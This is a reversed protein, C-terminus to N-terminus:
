RSLSLGFYRIPVQCDLLIMHTVAKKKLFFLVCFSSVAVDFVSLALSSENLGWDQDRDPKSKPVCNSNLLLRITVNSTMIHENAEMKLWAEKGDEAFKEAQNPATLVKFGFAKYFELTSRFLEDSSAIYAIHSLGKVM